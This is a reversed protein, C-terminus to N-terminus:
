ADVKPHLSYTVPAIRGHRDRLTAPRKLHARQSPSLRQPMEVPAAPLRPKAVPEQPEIVAEVILLRDEEPVPAAEHAMPDAYVTAAADLIPDYLRPAGGVPTMYQRSVAAKEDLDALSVDLAELPSSEMCDLFEHFAKMELEKHAQQIAEADWVPLKIEEHVPHGAGDEASGPLYVFPRSADRPRVKLVPRMDPDRPQPYAASVVRVFAAIDVESRSIPEQVERLPEPEECLFIPQAAGELRPKLRPHAQPDRPAIADMRAIFLGEASHDEVRGEMRRERVTQEPRRFSVVSSYGLSATPLRGPASETAKVLRAMFSRPMARHTKSEAM